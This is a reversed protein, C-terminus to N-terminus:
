PRATALSDNRRIALGLRLRRHRPPAPQARRPSRRAADLSHARPL